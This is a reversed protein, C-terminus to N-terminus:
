ENGDNEITKDGSDTRDGDAKKPRGNEDLGDTTLTHSSMLPILKNHMELVDNELFANLYGASPSLGLIAIIENKVPIGYQAAKLRMDFYDKVNFKTTHLIRVKFNYTGKFNAKGYENVWKEFEEVIVSLSSEDATISLKLATSSNSNGFLLESIGAENWYQSTAEAVKNKDLSDREFKIAEIKMPTTLLGVQEPLSSSINDHFMKVFDESILFDDATAEKGDKMPIQQFLLQYNGIEERGKALAKFDYIDLIGEFLGVMPPIPHKGNTPKICIANTSDVRVWKSSTKNNKIRNYITTFEDPYSNLLSENSSFISFDFSYGYLGTESNIFTVQCHDPDLHQIYFGNKTRRAYGYFVGDIYANARLQISEFKIGMQEYNDVAKIYSKKYKKIDIGDPNTNYGEVLYDFNYLTSYYNILSRYHPSSLYLFRSIKRLNKQSSLSSINKLNRKLDEKSFTNVVSDRNPTFNILKMSSFTTMIRQYYQKQAETM